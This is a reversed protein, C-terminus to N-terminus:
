YSTASTATSMEALVASGDANFEVRCSDAELNRSAIPVPSPPLSWVCVAAPKSKARPIFTVVTARKGAPVKAPCVWFRQAVPIRSGVEAPALTKGDLVLLGDGTMRCAFREDGTWQLAPWEEPGFAPKVRMAAAEALTAVDWVRLNAAPMSTLLGHAVLYMICERLGFHELFDARTRAILM